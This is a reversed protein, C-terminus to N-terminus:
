PGANTLGANYNILIQKESPNVVGRAKLLDVVHARAEPPIQHADFAYGKPLQKFAPMHETDEADGVWRAPNYWGRPSRKVTDLTLKDTIKQLGATGVKEMGGDADVAQDVKRRFDIADESSLGKITEKMIEEKTSVVNLGHPQKTQAPTAKGAVEAWNDMLKGYDGPSLDARQDQIKQLLAPADAAGNPDAKARLLEPLMVYFTDSKDPTFRNEQIQKGYEMLSKQKEPPLSQFVDQPFANVDGGVQGMANWLRDYTETQSETRAAKQLRFSRGVQSEVANALKEDNLLRKDSAMADLVDAQSRPQGSKPDYLLEHAIAGTQQQLAAADVAKGLVDREQPFIDAQHAEFYTKARMADQGPALLSQMTATRLESTARAQAVTIDDASAGEHGMVTRIQEMHQQIIQESRDAAPPANGVPPPKEGLYDYTQGDIPPAGVSSSANVKALELGTTLQRASIRRQQGIAYGDLQRNFDFRQAKITRSLLARQRDNTAGGEEKAIAEEFDSRAKDTAKHLEEPDSFNQSTLGTQPDQLLRLRHMEINSSLGQVNEQDHYRQERMAFQQVEGAFGEVARGIGAGFADPSVNPTFGASPQVQPGESNLPNTPTEPM